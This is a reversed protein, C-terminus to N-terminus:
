ETNERQEKAACLRSQNKNHETNLVHMFLQYEFLRIIVLIDINMRKLHHHVTFFICIQYKSEHYFLSHLQVSSNSQNQTCVAFLFCFISSCNANKLAKDLMCKSIQGFVIQEDWTHIQIWSSSIMEFLACM